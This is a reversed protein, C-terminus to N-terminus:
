KIGTKNQITWAILSARQKAIEAREGIFMANVTAHFLEIWRNFHEQTLPMHMHKDTVNTTYGSEDLLVFSWFDVMKPMHSEFDIRQFFPALDKDILVQSYFSQVLDQVDSKESIEKM